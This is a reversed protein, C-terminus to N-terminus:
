ACRLSYIVRADWDSPDILLLDRYRQKAIEILPRKQYIKELAKSETITPWTLDRALTLASNKNLSKTCVFNQGSWIGEGESRANAAKLKVTPNAKKLAEQQIM